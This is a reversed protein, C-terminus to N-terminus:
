FLRMTRPKQIYIENWKWDPEPLQWCWGFKGSKEAVVPNGKDDTYMPEWGMQRYIFGRHFQPDHYSIVLRIHYPQDPYVPPNLSVRDRQVMRLVERMAFTTVTPRFVGRRDTFGPVLGPRALDGGLQLRPSLWIRCMDVVQWQTIQGPYGYWAKNLTAHPNGVMILGLYDGIIYVMPKAKPHVSQRLYHHETVVGQAWALDSDTGLRTFSPSIQTAMPIMGTVMGTNKM